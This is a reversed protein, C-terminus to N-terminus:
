LSYKIGLLLQLLDGTSSLMKLLIKVIKLEQFGLYIKQNTEDEVSYKTMENTRNGFSLCM